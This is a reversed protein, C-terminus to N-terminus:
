IWGSMGGGMGVFDWAEADSHRNIGEYGSVDVIDRGSGAAHIALALAWFRDAHGDKTSPALFRAASGPSSGPEKRIAHLDDRLKRDGWPIRIKQNQFATKIGTALGLPRAGSMLMGEVRHAGYRRAMDEIPKEGMGTQDAALRIVKYRRMLRDLEADQEAFSVNRLTSVERLWLVDGVREVVAATWLDKRRAIDNGIYCLGGQYNEPSGAEWHECKSILEYPLWASAEDLWELLFEQAWSDPDNLAEELERADRPLGDAIADFIDVRHRSWVSDLRTDTMLEYFKNDKGNPTSTVILRFGASIVPFLARWIERSNQHWAFEDLFVSGSFGRATVPNAPLATIRSGGPLEVDLARYKIKSESEWMYELSDFAASYAKLHRKVGTDMAEKAQREGRSLIVWRASRGQAEARLCDEVIDLTTTFTKGTQRAFMGVKFRSEDAKWRQQYPHLRIRM